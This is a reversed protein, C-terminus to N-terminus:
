SVNKSPLYIHAAMDDYHATKIDIKDHAGRAIRFRAFRDLSCIKMGKWPSFSRVLGDGRRAQTRTHFHDPSNALIGEALGQQFGCLLIAHIRAKYLLVGLRGGSYRRDQDILAPL